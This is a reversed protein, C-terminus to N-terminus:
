NSTENLNTLFPKWNKFLEESDNEYKKISDFLSKEVKQM